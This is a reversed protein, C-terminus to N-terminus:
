SPAGSSSYPLNTYSNEKCLIASMQIFLCKFKKQIVYGLLVVHAYQVLFHWAYLALIGYWVAYTILLQHEM